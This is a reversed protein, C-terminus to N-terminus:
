DTISGSKRLFESFVISAAMGVNLSDIGERADSFKPITIKEDIFPFLEPSIGKSENGLLIIGKTSLKHSYIPKGGLVTGFVTTSNEHAATLLMKLDYYFINVHLLAGMCAQVVKPNYVDVCDPSCIINKIGFWGAARIITGLNGPDQIFDLVVCYQNLISPLDFEQQPMTLVALANHPTKLSSIQKLEEFTAEEIGGIRSDPLVALEQLFENKAVLLKIPAQAAIFEKVLKDGEIIFLKENDRTKKIQLSQIFKIKTKSLMIELSYIVTSVFKIL